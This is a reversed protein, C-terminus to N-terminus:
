HNEFPQMSMGALLSAQASIDHMLYQIPVPKSKKLSIKLPFQPHRPPDHAIRARARM